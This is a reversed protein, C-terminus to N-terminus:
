VAVNDILRVDEIWAAVFLRAPGQAREVASLDEASCLSLYELEEFGAALIEAESQKKLEAFVGGASLRAALDTLIPHLAGAMKAGEASLRMNRSSMALGSAERVTPCGVVQIPIDLDRAMRRVVLLQQYDKEGFFAQHAGTQLFLKAVVTAVGDFHGPRSAGEMQDAVGTVSVTSAFGDPYIQDPDPVYIVDVDYPKLKIADEHETRPYNALDEPNNFQKPNVFITVIVRDCAVKAAAVLSLHGAHLAGMTPVVAVREGARIWDSHKDRLEALQRIIPATM